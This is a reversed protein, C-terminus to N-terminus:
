GLDTLSFPPARPQTNAPFLQNATAIGAVNQEARVYFRATQGVIDAQQPLLISVALRCAECDFSSAHEHSSDEGHRAHDDASTVCLTPVSGDPLAYQAFETAASADPLIPEKHSFGVVVFAIVCIIRTLLRLIHPLRADM